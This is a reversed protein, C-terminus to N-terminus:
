RPIATINAKSYLRPMQLFITTAFTDSVVFGRPRIADVVDLNEEGPIGYIRDVGENELAAVLLNSGKTMRMEKAAAECAFVIYNL